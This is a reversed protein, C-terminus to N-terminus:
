RGGRRGDIFCEDLQGLLLLRLRLCRRDVLEEGVVRERDEVDRRRLWRRADVLLLEGHM